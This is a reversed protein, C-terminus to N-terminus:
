WCSPRRHLGHPKGEGEGGMDGGRCGGGQLEMMHYASRVAVGAKTLMGVVKQRTGLICSLVYDHMIVCLLVCYYFMEM